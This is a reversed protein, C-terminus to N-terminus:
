LFIDLSKALDYKGRNAQGPRQRSGALWSGWHRGCPAWGSLGGLPALSLLCAGAWGAGGAAQRWHHMEQTARWPIRTPNAQKKSAQAAKRGGCLTRGGEAEMADPRRQGLGEEGLRVWLAEGARGKHPLEEEVWHTHVRQAAAKAQEPMAGRQGLAECPSEPLAAM